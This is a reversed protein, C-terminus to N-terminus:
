ASSPMRSLTADRPSPSTYLLCNQRLAILVSPFAPGVSMLFAGTADLPDVIWMDELAAQDANLEESMIPLDSDAKLVACAAQDADRDVQSVLDGVGKQEIVLIETAGGAIVKGAATAAQVATKLLPSIESAHELTFKTVM